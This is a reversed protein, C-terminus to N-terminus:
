LSLTQEMDGPDQPPLELTAGYFGSYYEYNSEIIDSPNLPFVFDANLVEGLHALESVKSALSSGPNPIVLDYTMRLGYRILDVQWRRMMRFYDARMTQSDSPNTLTRVSLDQTGAVSSVRFSQQQQKM